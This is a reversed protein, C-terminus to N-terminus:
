APFLNERKVWDLTRDLTRTLRDFLEDIQAPTIILPPCVAVADGLSRILVGEEQAIAMAKAGVGAKPDFARKTVKDAVMEVAGILGVGRAEGVLPHDALAKLRAQFQPAKAAAQEFIKDRQYIELVKLAVAAGVPHGSYTFGHGFSGIKRSQDLLAQHMVEPVMVAAIPFYASSLAKAVSISDPLYGLVPAGFASGLRGFACIVEDAIMYVDYKRCVAMIKPFYSAPPVIVGGAGMVPEAIFAAVTEPGEKLILAELEGALRTAFDDESEGPEAGRYYYPAATHLIGAIPLDFDTHNAPLGTLSGSAITVGHYARQRSIIKKKQPRGLANNMYWVLKIQSDNAESGSGAFFVKSIPVPAMEKLKEALEIAPDHSKGGFLHTFSLKRMQSAAAEVVEENGYGLATCWLGSLGEIYAKGDVDYVHIGNARELVLPGTERLKALHTYPHVLTEVDRTQLNTLM